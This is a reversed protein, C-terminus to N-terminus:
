GDADLLQRCLLKQAGLNAVRGAAGLFDLRVVPPNPSVSGGVSCTLLPTRAPDLRQLPSRVKTAIISPRTAASRKPTLLPPRAPAQAGGPADGPPPPSGSCLFDGALPAFDSGAPLWPFDDFVLM